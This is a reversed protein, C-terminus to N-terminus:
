QPQTQQHEETREYIPEDDLYFHRVQEMGNPGQNEDEYYEKVTQQLYKSESERISKQYETPSQGDDFELEDAPTEPLPMDEGKFVASDPQSMIQNVPLEHEGKSCSREISQEHETLCQTVYSKDKELKDQFVEFNNRTDKRQVTPSRVSGGEQLCAM